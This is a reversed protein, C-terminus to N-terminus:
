GPTHADAMAQSHLPIPPQLGVPSIAEFAKLSCPRFATAGEWTWDFEVAHGVQLEFVTGSESTSVQTVNRCQLRKWQSADRYERRIAKKADDLFNLDQPPLQLEMDFSAPTSSQNWDGNEAGMSCTLRKRPNGNESTAVLQEHKLRPATQSSRRRALGFEPRPAQHYQIRLSRDVSNRFYNCGRESESLAIGTDVSKLYPDNKIKKLSWGCDTRRQIGGESCREYIAPHALPPPQTIM